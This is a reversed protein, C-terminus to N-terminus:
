LATIIIRGFFLTRYILPCEAERCCCFEDQVHERSAPSETGQLSIRKALPM